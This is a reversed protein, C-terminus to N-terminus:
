QLILLYSTDYDFVLTIFGPLPNTEYGVVLFHEKLWELLDKEIFDFCYFDIEDINFYEPFEENLLDIEKKLASIEYNYHIRKIESDNSTSLQELYLCKKM